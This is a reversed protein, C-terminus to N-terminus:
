CCLHWKFTSKWFYVLVKYRHIITQLMKRWNNICNRINFVLQLEPSTLNKQIFTHSNLMIHKKRLRFKSHTKSMEICFFIVYKELRHNLYQTFTAYYLIFVHFYQRKHIPMKEWYFMSQILNFIFINLFELAKEIM